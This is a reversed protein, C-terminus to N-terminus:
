SAARIIQYNIITDAGPDGSFTVTLTNNTVVAQLVTVNNTGNDVVQVFARDTSGVAGTVTFAETAAGGVTTVQNAFKIVAAPAIGTGLMSLLVKGAGIATVGTNSITIDGSMPVGTAVNSSNGVFIDASPLTNSLGGNAPVSVFADTSANYTFWGIQATAYYILVIDQDEWQWAGNNILEVSASQSSFYNATTIATLDDTTVIGVINPFLNFDRKISIIM